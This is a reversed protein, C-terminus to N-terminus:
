SPTALSISIEYLINFSIGNAILFSVNLLVILLFWYGLISVVCLIAGFPFIATSLWKCYKM